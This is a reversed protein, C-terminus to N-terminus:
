EGEATESAAIEMSKKVLTVLDETPTLMLEKTEIPLNAKVVGDLSERYLKIAAEKDLTYEADQEGPKGLLYWVVANKARLMCRSRLDYGAEVALTAGLLGLSALYTRAALDAEPNSREGQKTPFRLRRLAPLSLVTSQEAKSITFGGDTISPTVNGHNAESPKGDKGLLVPKSKEKNALKEDLTWGDKSEYLKGSNVRINLPDIRSSTKVGAVSRIGIIESIIARAFKVGLGGRPGTSDWMGFVLSHPAHTLLPTAYGSSLNDLEKGVTSKRFKEKGLLSDRLIADAIRHPAQLSTVKPLGPNDVASFDVSVVPIEIAGAEWADQLALEMRNAQSPVSDLLVCPVVEGNIIREETAFKGGEYTPPFVKPAVAELELMLRFAAASGSLAEQIIKLSLKASM